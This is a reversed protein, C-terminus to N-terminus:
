WWGGFCLGLWFGVLVSGVELVGGLGGFCWRGGM